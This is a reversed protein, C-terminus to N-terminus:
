VMEKEAKLYVNEEVVETTLCVMGAEEEEPKVDWLDPQKLEEELEMVEQELLSVLEM